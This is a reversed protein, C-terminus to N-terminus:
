DPSLVLGKVKNSPEHDFFDLQDLDISPKRARSWVDQRQPFENDIFLSEQTIYMSKLDHPQVQRLSNFLDLKLGLREMDGVIDGLNRTLLHVRAGETSQKKLFGLVEEVVVGDIVLTEDYDVFLDRFSLSYKPSLVSDVSIDSWSITPM